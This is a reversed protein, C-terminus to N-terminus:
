FFDLPIINKFIIYLFNASSTQALDLLDETAEVKNKETPNFIVESYETSTLANHHLIDMPNTYSYSGGEFVTFTSYHKLVWNEYESHGKLLHGLAHHPVCLDQILHLASGIYFLANELNSNKFAYRAKEIADILLHDAGTLGMIGKRTKPHYFHHISKFGEDCWANGKNLIQLYRHFDEVFITNHDNMLIKLAQSTCFSHVTCPTPERQILTNM